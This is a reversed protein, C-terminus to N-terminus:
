DANMRPEFEVAPVKLRKALLAMVRGEFRTVILTAAKNGSPSLRKRILEPTDPVGRKKVELQGIGRERVLTKLQKTDFPLIDTIEFGALATDDIRQEGTLYGGEPTIAQLGHETALSSTIGAALVAPDPEYLYRGVNSAPNLKAASDEVVTRPESASLVTATRLGSHEGWFWLMQQRCEGRSSIWERMGTEAWSEPVETAPALKIAGNGCELKWDEILSPSPALFELKTHRQGENRRDPDVHWGEHGYTHVESVDWTEVRTERGTLRRYNESALNAVIPDRDVGIAPCYPPYHNEDECVRAGIACLDGGIGCCIDLVPAYRLAFRGAKYWAIAEDTAQELGKRTFFMENARSFKEQARKRLEVQEIVLHAREASLDKRLSAVLRTLEGTHEACRAFYPLAADSTLWHYDRLDGPTLEPVKM